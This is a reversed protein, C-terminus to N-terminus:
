KVVNLVLLIYLWMFWHRQYYLGQRHALSDIGTTDQKSM